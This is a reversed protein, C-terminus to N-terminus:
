QGLPNITQMERELRERQCGLDIYWECIGRPQFPQYFCADRGSAVILGVDRDLAHRMISAVTRHQINTCRPVAWYPAGPTWYVLAPPPASQPASRSQQVKQQYDQRSQERLARDVANQLQITFTNNIRNENRVIVNATAQNNNANTAGTPPVPLTGTNAAPPIIITPPAPPTTTGTTTGTNTSTNVNTATSTSSSTNNNVNTNTNTSSADIPAPPTPPPPPVTTSTPTTPTTTTTTTTTASSGPPLTTTTTATDGVVPEATLVPPPPEAVTTTTPATTTPATTTPATTTPATVEPAVPAGITNTAPETAPPLAPPTEQAAAIMPMAVAIAAALPSLFNM